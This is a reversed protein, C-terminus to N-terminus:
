KLETVFWFPLVNIKFHFFPTENEVGPFDYGGLRIAGPKPEAHFAITAQNTAVLKKLLDLFSDIGGQAADTDPPKEDAVAEAKNKNEDSLDSHSDDNATSTQLAKLKEAEAEKAV